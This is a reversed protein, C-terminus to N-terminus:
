TIAELQLLLALLQQLLALRKKLEAITATEPLPAANEWCTRASNWPTTGELNYLHKAYALNGDLTLIDYGLASAANKHISEYFQFVGVMGGNAGGRLVAGTDTFQRFNSECRAIEILVPTDSFYDRVKQEATESAAFTGIPLLLIAIILYIKMILM